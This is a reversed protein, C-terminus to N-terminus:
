LISLKNKKFHDFDDKKMYVIGNNYLRIDKPWWCVIPYEYGHEIDRYGDAQIWWDIMYQPVMYTLSIPTTSLIQKDKKTGFVCAGYVAEFFPKKLFFYFDDAEFVLLVGSSNQELLLNYLKKPANYYGAKSENYLGFDINNLQKLVNQPIFDKINLHTFADIIRIGDPSNPQAPRDSNTVLHLHYADRRQAEKWDKM